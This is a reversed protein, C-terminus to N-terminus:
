LRVYVHVPVLELLDTVKGLVYKSIDVHISWSNFSFFNISRSRALQLPRCYLVSPCDM